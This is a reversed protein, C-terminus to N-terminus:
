VLGMEYIKLATVLWFLHGVEIGKRNVHLVPKGGASDQNNLWFKQHMWQICPQGMGIEERRMNVASQGIKLSFLSATNDSNFTKLYLYM